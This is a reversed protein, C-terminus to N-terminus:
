LFKKKIKYITGKFFGDPVTEETKLVSTAEESQRIAENAQDTLEKSKEELQQKGTEPNVLSLVYLDKVPKEIKLFAKELASKTKEWLKKQKISIKKQDPYKEEIAQIRQIEAEILAMEANFKLFAQYLEPMSYFTFEIMEDALTLNPILTKQYVQEAESSKSFYFHYVTFGSAGLAALILVFVILKKITFKKKKVPKKPPEEKAPKQDGTDKSSAASAADSPEKDKKNKKGFGLM